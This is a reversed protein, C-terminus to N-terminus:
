ASISDRARAEFTELVRARRTRRKCRSRHVRKRKAAARVRGSWNASNRFQRTAGCVPQGRAVLDSFSTSAATPDPRTSINRAPLRYELPQLTCTRTRSFLCVCPLLLVVTAAVAPRSSSAFLSLSLWSLWSLSHVTTKPPLQLNCRCHTKRRGPTERCAKWRWPHWPHVRKDPVVNKWVDRCQM